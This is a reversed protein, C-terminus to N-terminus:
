SLLIKRLKFVPNKSEHAYLECFQKRANQVHSQNWWADLDHWIDNVKNAVSEASLHVIGTDVLMKYHPIVNHELHDFNNQWFALTPINQCLTELLGTSDYSHIVLRNQSILKRINLEGTDLKLSADFDLWRKKESWRSLRHGLHLRIILNSKVNNTLKKVFKQQDNFYEIYESEVDWTYFRLPYHTEILVLGGKPDYNKKKRKVVKFIFAPVHQPLEGKFGWTIFKDATLEEIQPSFNKKTGYNNGHQGVYYKFGLEVKSATWLKFIEDTHYNNSTFIFKPTKPWPQQNTVKKLINFGELYCIPFIEFLLSRVISEYDHESKKYTFQKKLKKRLLKDAENGIKPLNFNRRQLNWIQPWQKLALELQIEVLGPLYTNIIYADDDKLFKRSIKFYKHICWEFIKTKLSKDPTSSKLKFSTNIYSKNKYELFEKPFDIELFEIIKANLINNWRDDGCVRYLSIDDLIALDNNDNKYVITGSIENFQFCQKLTNIRNLLLQLIDRFWHAHIIKWFKEGHSTEFHRNLIECFEPFLKQELKKVELFDIDKKSKGIGYPRAVKADLNQWIHKREYLRCWEGLFILPRDFKWTTEDATTILYRKQIKL